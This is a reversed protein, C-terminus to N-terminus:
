KGLEGEAWIGISHPTASPFVRSNEYTVVLNDSLVGAQDATESFM